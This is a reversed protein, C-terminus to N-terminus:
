DTPAHASPVAGSRVSALPPYSASAVIDVGTGLINPVVIDGIQVPSPCHVGRLVSMIEFIHGKPVSGRSRVPLWGGKQLRVTSTLVRQPNRYEQLVYERGRKCRADAVDVVEGESVTLTAACGQPCAICTISVTEAKV